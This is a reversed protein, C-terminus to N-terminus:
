SLSLHRASKFAAIFRQTGYFAPFKNVVQSVILKELLVAAHILYTLPLIELKRFLSRCSTRTKADIM